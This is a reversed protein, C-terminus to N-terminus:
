ELGRPSPSGGRQRPPPGRRAAAHRLPGTAAQVSASTGPATPQDAPRAFTAREVIAAIVADMDRLAEAAPIRIVDFGRETFWAGRGRDREPRDGRGHAEGYIEVILKADHCFFDAIYPGAPHQRRFKLGGPRSRLVRWLLVEPLSMESRLVRAHRITPEPGQLM